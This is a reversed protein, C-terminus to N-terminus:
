ARYLKMINKGWWFTLSNPCYLSNAKLCKAFCGVRARKRRWLKLIVFPKPFDFNPTCKWRAIRKQAYELLVFISGKLFNMELHLKKTKELLIEIHSYTQIFCQMKWRSILIKACFNNVFKLFMKNIKLLFKLTQASLNKKKLNIINLQIRHFFILNRKRSTM